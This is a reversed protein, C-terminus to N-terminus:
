RKDVSLDDSEGFTERSMYNFMRLRYIGVAGYAFDIEPIRIMHTTMLLRYGLKM